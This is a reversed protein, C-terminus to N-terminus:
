RTQALSSVLCLIKADLGVKAQKNIWTQARPEWFLIASLRLFDKYFDAPKSYRSHSYLSSDTRDAKKRLAQMLLELDLAGAVREQVHIVLLNPMNMQMQGLKDLVIRLVREENRATDAFEGEKAGMRAVEVNFVLNKRYTAAFDPGRGQLSAYPEYALALRPESLLRYAVELEGRLDLTRGPENVVKIKKRIKDRYEDVFDTFRASDQMWKSLDNRLLHSRSEFLYAILDAQKTVGEIRLQFCNSIQVKSM